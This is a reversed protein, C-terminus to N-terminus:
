SKWLSRTSADMDKGYEKAWQDGHSQAIKGFLVEARNVRAATKMFNIDENSLGSKGPDIREMNASSAVSLNYRSHISTDQAPAAIWLMALASGVLLTSAGLKM